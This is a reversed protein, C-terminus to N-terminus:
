LATSHQNELSENSTNSYGEKNSLILGLSHILVLCDCLYVFYFMQEPPIAIANGIISDRFEGGGYNKWLFAVLSMRRGLSRCVMAVAGPVVCRAHTYHAPIILHVRRVDGCAPDM